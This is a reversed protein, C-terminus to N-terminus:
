MVCCGKKEPDARAGIPPKRHLLLRQVSAASVLWDLIYKLCQAEKVPDNLSGLLCQLPFPDSFMDQLLFEAHGAMSLLQLTQGRMLVTAVDADASTADVATCPASYLRMQLAPHLPAGFAQALRRHSHHIACIFSRSKVDLVEALARRPEQSNRKIFTGIRKLVAGSATAGDLDLWELSSNFQLADALALAGQDSVKNEDLWLQQLTCNYQLALALALAGRDSIQNSGIGLRRLSSNVSLAEALALVGIDGIGNQHLYLERMGVNVCLARSMAVAGTETICNGSLDLWQLSSNVHLADAMAHVAIDTIHNSGLYLWKLSSNHHLSKAILLAGRDTIRNNDLHMRTLQTFKGLRIADLLDWLDDDTLSRENLNIAECNCKFFQGGVRIGPM